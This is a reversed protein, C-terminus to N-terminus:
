RVLWLNGLGETEDTEIAGSADEDYKIQLAAFRATFLEAYKEYRKWWISEPDTAFNFFIMEFTKIIVLERIQSGDILMSPRRGKDKILRKVTAFAEAIQGSYNVTGTWIEDALQPFYAKLDDDTVNCTLANLVVDFFLIAKYVVSSITYSIEMVANEWLDATKTAALSYTMTGTTGNVTMATSALIETGDPDKIVIAAASPKAQIGALYVKVEIPYIANRVAQDETLKIVHSM